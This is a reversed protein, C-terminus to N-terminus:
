TNAFITSNIDHNSLGKQSAYVYESNSSFGDPGEDAEDEIFPINKECISCIATEEDVINAFVYNPNSEVTKHPFLRMQVQSLKLLNHLKHNKCM